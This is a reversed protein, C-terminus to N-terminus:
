VGFASDPLKYADMASAVSELNKFLNQNEFTQRVAPAIPSVREWVLRLESCNLMVLERHLIGCTVFSSVMEWYSVVMRYSANEESGAPCLKQFEDLTSARFNKSFWARAKRMREERRLEYLRLLLNADEYTAPREDKSNTRAM